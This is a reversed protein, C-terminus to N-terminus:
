RFVEEKEGESDDEEGERIHERIKDLKKKRHMRRKKIEEKRRTYVAVFLILSGIVAAFVVYRLTDGIVFISV